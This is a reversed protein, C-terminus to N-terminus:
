PNANWANHSFRWSGNSDRKFLSLGKGASEITKDGETWGGAFTWVVCAFDGSGSLEEVKFDLAVNGFDLSDAWKRWAKSGRIPGAARPDLNIHDDSLRREVADLDAATNAALVDDWAKRVAALDAPTLDHSRTSM